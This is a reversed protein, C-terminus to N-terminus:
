CCCAPKRCSTPYSAKSRNCGTGPQRTKRLVTYHGNSCTYPCARGARRCCFFCPIPVSRFWCCSCPIVQSRRSVSADPVSGIFFPIGLPFLGPFGKSLTALTILAGSCLWLAVAPWGKRDFAHFSCIVASLTFIGMTNENVNNSASWFITPTTIWLLVPLWSFRKAKPDAKFIFLWLHRILAATICTTLFVYFREVYMSNGLLRFFLSVIGFVLPPQEHFTHPGRIGLNLDSFVPFWFSGIGQAQNHAVSTYLVADMFMGDQILVYGPLAIFVALTLLRFPLHIGASLENM